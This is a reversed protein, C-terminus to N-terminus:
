SSWQKNRQKSNKNTQKPLYRALYSSPMYGLWLLALSQPLLNSHIWSWGPIYLPSVKDQSCVFLVFCFALFNLSMCCLEVSELDNVSLHFLNRQSTPPQGSSFMILGNRFLIEFLSLSDLVGRLSQRSPETTWLVEALDHPGSESNWHGHQTAWLWRCYWRWSMQSVRRSKLPVCVYMCVNVYVCAVFVCLCM